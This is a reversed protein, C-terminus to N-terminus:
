DVLEIIDDAASYNIKGITFLFILALHLNQKIDKGKERAVRELVVSLLQVKEDVLIRLIDASLGVVSTKIDTFKNPKLM